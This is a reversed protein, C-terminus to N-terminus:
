KPAQNILENVCMEQSRRGAQINFDDKIPSFISFRTNGKRKQIVCDNAQSILNDVDSETMGDKILSEKIEEQKESAGSFYSLTPNFIASLVAFVFVASFIFIMLLPSIYFKSSATNKM